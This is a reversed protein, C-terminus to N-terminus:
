SNFTFDSAPLPPSSGLPLQGDVVSWTGQLPESFEGARWYSTPTRMTCETRSSNCHVDSAEASAIAEGYSNQGREFSFDNYLDSGYVTIEEPVGEPGSSPSVRTVLPFGPITEPIGTSPNIPTSGQSAASQTGDWSYATVFFTLAGGGRPVYPLEVAFTATSSAAPPVIFQPDGASLMGTTHISQNPDAWSVAYCIGGPGTTYNSPVSWSIYIRGRQPYEQVVGYTGSIQASVDTPTAPLPTASSPPAPPDILTQETASQRGGAGAAFWTATVSVRKEADAVPTMAPSAGPCAPVSLTAWLVRTTLTFTWTGSVIGTLYASFSPPSPETGVTFTASDLDPASALEVLQNDPTQSAGYFYCTPFSPSCPPSGSQQSTYYGPVTDAAEAAEIDNGTLGIQSYPLSQIKSIVTTDLEIADQRASNDAAISQTELFIRGLPVVVIAVLLMSVLVEILTFGGSSEPKKM